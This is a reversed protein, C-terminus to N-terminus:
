LGGFGRSPSAGEAAEKVEEETIQNVVPIKVEEPLLQELPKVIKVKIAEDFAESSMGPCWQQRSCGFLGVIYVNPYRIAM